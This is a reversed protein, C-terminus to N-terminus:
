GRGRGSARGSEGAQVSHEELLREVIYENGSALAAVAIRRDKLDAPTRVEGSDLLAERVMFALGTNEPALRTVPAVIRINIDREVANYLAPGISGIGADLEGTGLSPIAKAGADFPILDLEIREERFYGRELAVYFASENGQGTVQVRVVAPETAPVADRGESNAAPSASGSAPAGGADAAGAAAPRPAAPAAPAACALASLLAVAALLWVRPSRECRLM